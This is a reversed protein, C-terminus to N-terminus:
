FGVQFLPVSGACKTRLCINHDGSEHSTFTFKGQPLGRTSVIQEKSEVEQASTQVPPGPVPSRPRRVEVTVQIGLRDNVIFKSEEESWEEAKYNGALRPSSVELAAVRMSEGVVITHQPLEELFCRTTGAALYFYLADSSAPLVSLAVLASALFLAIPRVTM